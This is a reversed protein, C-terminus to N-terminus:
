SKADNSHVAQVGEVLLIVRPRCPGLVAAEPEGVVEARVQADGSDEKEFIIGIGAAPIAM